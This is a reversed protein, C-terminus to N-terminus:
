PLSPSQMTGSIDIRPPINNGRITDARQRPIVLTSRAGQMIRVAVHWQNVVAISISHGGFGAWNTPSGIRLEAHYELDHNVPSATHIEYGIGGLWIKAWTPPNPQNWTAPPNPALQALTFQGDGDIEIIVFLPQPGSDMTRSRKFVLAVVVYEFSLPRHIINWSRM